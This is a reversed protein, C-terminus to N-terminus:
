KLCKMTVTRSGDTQLASTAKSIGKPCATQKYTFTLVGNTNTIGAFVQPAPVPAPVPPVVIVTAAAVQNWAAGEATESTWESPVGGPCVTRADVGIYRDTITGPTLPGFPWQFTPPATPKVGLSVWGNMMYHTGRFEYQCTLDKPDDWTITAIANSATVAFAPTAASCLLLLAFVLTRM